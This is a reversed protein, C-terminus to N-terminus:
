TRLKGDLQKEVTTLIRSIAEEIAQETLNSSSEQLTLTYSMSKKGEPVGKGRYVDFLEINKLRKGASQTIANLLQSAVVSEDVLISLDRTTSPFKSLSHFEPVRSKMIENVRIQFTFM